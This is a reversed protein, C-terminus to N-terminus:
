NGMGAQLTRVNKRKELFRIISPAFLFAFIPSDWVTSRQVIFTFLVLISCFVIKEEIYLNKKIISLVAIIVSILLVVMYGFFSSLGGMKIAVGPSFNSGYNHVNEITSITGESLEFGIPNSILMEPINEITQEFDYTRDIRSQNKNEYASAFYTMSFLLVISSVFILLFISIIINKQQTKVSVFLLLSLLVAFGIMGGLSDTLYLGIILVFLGLYKKYFYAYCIAPIIFMALTGPEAFCGCLRPQPETYQTIYFVSFWGALYDGYMETSIMRLANGFLFTNLYDFIGFLIVLLMFYYFYTWLKLSNYKKKLLYPIILYVIWPFVNGVHHITKPNSIFNLSINLFIGLAVFLGPIIYFYWVNKKYKFFVICYIFCIITFALALGNFFTAINKLPWIHKLITLQFLIAVWFLIFVFVSNEKNTDSHFFLHGKTTSLSRQM